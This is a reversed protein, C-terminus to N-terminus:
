AFTYMSLFRLPPSVVGWGGWGGGGGGGGGGTLRIYVNVSVTLPPFLGGGLFRLPLVGGGGWVSM